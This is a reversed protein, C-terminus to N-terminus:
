EPSAEAGDPPAAVVRSEPASPDELPEGPHEDEPAAPPESHEGYGLVTVHLGGSAEM